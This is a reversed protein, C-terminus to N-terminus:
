QENNEEKKSSLRYYQTQQLGPPPCLPGKFLEDVEELSKGRTEPLLLFLFVWGGSALGVYLGFAGYRTLYRTLHLFTLSVLLNSIWNTTSSASNGISRAWNPYIEANVTWPIPGMGPSFSIIYLVLAVLALWSFKNPCSSHLTGYYYTDNPPSLSPVTYTLDNCSSNHTQMVLTSEPLWCTQKSDKTIAWKRYVCYGSTDKQGYTGNSPFLCYFCNDTIVCDDCHQMSCQETPCTPQTTTSALYFAIALLLLSFVIGILSALALKRRGVKEICYVGILTFIFNGFAIVGGLGIALHDNDVGAMKLITPSYYRCM